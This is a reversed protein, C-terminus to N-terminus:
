EDGGKVESGAGGLKVKGEEIWEDVLDNLEETAATYTMGKVYHSQTEDSEFDELPTFMRGEPPPTPEDQKSQAKGTTPKKPAPKTAM